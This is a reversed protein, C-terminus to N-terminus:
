ARAPLVTGVCDGFGISAYGKRSCRARLTVEDGDHLYFRQEGSKLKLPATGDLTHELLCGAGNAELGSITGTGLIDGPNLVCGNNTHHAVLQTPTWYLNLANTAAIREAASSCATCLLIELDVNLAGNAQDAENWLYPLPRPDGSDRMPQAARFPALAEPLIIWPSITTATSKALFPGLPQAEWRQIDRSSWDNLICFGFIHGAADAIDIPDGSANGRGIWVGIEFEYDFKRTPERVPAAAGPPLIQGHPRKVKAPSVGVTSARSNYAIPVYKYNPPLPDNPRLMRGATTAHHIGAFFDTFGGIRAPLHMQCAAAEHLVSGRAVATRFASGTALLGSVATRLARRLSPDAAMLDNLADGLCLKAGELADNTFLEARVAAPVDFIMDGIAVGVRPREGKPSFVGLPLNQIPFDPHGNASSVWSTLSPALTADTM